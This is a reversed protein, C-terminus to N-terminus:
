EGSILSDVSFTKSFAMFYPAVNASTLEGIQAGVM